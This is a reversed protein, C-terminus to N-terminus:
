EGEFYDEDIRKLKITKKDSVGIGYEIMLEALKRGNILVVERSSNKAEQEADLSFDSTTIFVGKRANKTDLSGIFNRVMPSSVNNGVKFRKAQLYIKDLGLRDLYVVGDIGGDRSKSTGSTSGYGMAEFLDRVIKEFRYADVKQLRVLLENILEDQIKTYGEEILEDPTINEESKEITSDDKKSPRRYWESFEPITRLFSVDIKNHVLSLVKIGQPTIKVYGRKTSKILGAKKLYLKAWRVRNEIVTERGSALRQNREEQSLMFKNSIYDILEGISREKKDKLYELLPYMIEHFKPITM